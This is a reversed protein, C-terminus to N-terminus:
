KVSLVQVGKRDRQIMEQLNGGRKGQIARNMEMVNSFYANSEKQEFFVGDNMLTQARQGRAPASPQALLQTGRYFAYHAKGHRAIV